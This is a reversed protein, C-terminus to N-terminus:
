NFFYDSHIVQSLDLNGLKPPKPLELGSYKELQKHFLEIFGDKYQEVFTERLENALTSVHGIHVAFSDHVMSFDNVGINVLRNVTNMMHAADMSHVMNPSFGTGQKKKNLLDLSVNLRRQIRISNFTTNIQKSEYKKYFQKVHFGAPTDWELHKDNESCLKAISKLWDM